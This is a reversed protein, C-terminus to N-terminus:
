QQRQAQNDENSAGRKLLRRLIDLLFEAFRRFAMEVLAIWKLTISRRHHDDVRRSTEFVSRGAVRFIGLSNGSGDSCELVTM